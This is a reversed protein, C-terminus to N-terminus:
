KFDEPSRMGCAGTQAIRQARYQAGTMGLEAGKQKNSETIRKKISLAIEPHREMTVAFGKQCAEIFSEQQCRTRGGARQADKFSAQQARALGGRRCAEIRALRKQEQTDLDSLDFSVTTM